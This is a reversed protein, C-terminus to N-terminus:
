YIMKNKGWILLRTIWNLVKTNEISVDMSWIREGGNKYSDFIKFIFNKDYCNNKRTLLTHVLYQHQWNQETEAELHDIYKMEIVLSTCKVLVSM